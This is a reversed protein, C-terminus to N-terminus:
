KIGTMCLKHDWLPLGISARVKENIIRKRYPDIGSM